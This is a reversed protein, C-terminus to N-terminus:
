ESLNDLPKNVLKNRENFLKQEGVAKEQNCKYCMTKTNNINDKGGLSRALTHDHTFLVEKGDANIGWLNMHYGLVTQNRELAFFSARLKCKTCRTGHQYFTKLRLSKTNVMEGNILVKPIESRKGAHDVISMKIAALGEEISLISHRIYIPQVVKKTKHSSM